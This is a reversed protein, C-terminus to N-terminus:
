KGKKQSFLWELFKPTRYSQEWCFHGLKPFETYIVKSNHSKLSKVMNRSRSVKVLRDKAGHFAWIPIHAIKKSENEDGGGCIPVAAAFRNPFRCIADWTGFGGMSLGTIYIRNLDIPYNDTIHDILQITAALSVSIKEPIKHSLLTWDVEAWRKGKPCQPAIVFCPYKTRNEKSELVKIGHILQSKNDNGREGAGHLFVVLPYKKEKIYSPLKTPKDCCKKHEFKLPKMLLYPLSFGNKSKFQHPTFHGVNQGNLSFSVLFAFFFLCFNNIKM